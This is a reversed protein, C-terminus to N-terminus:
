ALRHAGMDEANRRIRLKAFKRNRSSRCCIATLCIMLSPDEGGPIKVRARLMNTRGKRSLHAVCEHNEEQKRQAAEISLGVIDPTLKGGPAQPTEDRAANMYRLYLSGNWMFVDNSFMDFKYRPFFDDDQHRSVPKDESFMPIRGDIFFIGRSQSAAAARCFVISQQNETTDRLLFCTKQYSTMLLSSSTNNDMSDPQDLEILELDKHVGDQDTVVTVSTTDSSKNIFISGGRQEVEELGTGKCFESCSSSFSTTSTTSHISFNNSLSNNSTDLDCSDEITVNKILPHEMEGGGNLRKEVCSIIKGHRSTATCVLTREQSLKCDISSKIHMTYEIISSALPKVDELKVVMKSENWAVFRDFIAACDLVREMTHSTTSSAYTVTVADAVYAAEFARKLVCSSIPTGDFLSILKKFRGQVDSLPLRHQRTPRHHSSSITEADIM